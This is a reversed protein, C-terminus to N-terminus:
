YNYSLGLQLVPQFRMDRLLEEMNAPRSNGLRLSNSSGLLGLDASFGWGGHISQGSYGLGLYSATAAPDSPVASPLAYGLSLQSVSLNQGLKFANSGLALGYGGAQTASLPGLMMGGTARLGGKIQTLGSRTLFYDGMLRASLLRSSGPAGAASRELSGLELRAQWTPVELGASLANAELEGARSTSPLLAMLSILSVLSLATGAMATPKSSLLPSHRVIKM